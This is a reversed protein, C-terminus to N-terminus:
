VMLLQTSSCVFLLILSRIGDPLTEVSVRKTNVFATQNLAFQAKCNGFFPVLSRAKILRSPEDDDTGKMCCTNM